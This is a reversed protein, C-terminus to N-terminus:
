KGGLAYKIKELQYNNRPSRPALTQRPQKESTFGETAGLVQGLVPVSKAVGKVAKRLSFPNTALVGCSPCVLVRHKKGKNYIMCESGCIECHFQRKQKVM